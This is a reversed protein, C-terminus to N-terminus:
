INENPLGRIYTPSLEFTGIRLADDVSQQMLEREEETPATRMQQIRQLTRVPLEQWFQYALRKSAGELIPELFASFDAESDNTQQETSRTAPRTKLFEIGTPTWMKRGSDEIVFHMGQKFLGPCRSMWSRITGIPIGTIEAAQQTTYTEV